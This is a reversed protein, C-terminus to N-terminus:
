PFIKSKGEKEFSSTREKKKGWLIRIHNLISRCVYSYMYRFSFIFYTFLEFRLNYSYKQKKVKRKVIVKEQTHNQTPIEQSVQGDKSNKRILEIHSEIDEGNKNEPLMFDKDTKKNRKARSVHNPPSSNFQFKDKKIHIIKHNKETNDQKRQRKQKKRTTLRYMNNSSTYIHKLKRTKLWHEM